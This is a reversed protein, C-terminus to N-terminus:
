EDLALRDVLILELAQERALVLRRHERLLRGRRRRRRGVLLALARRLRLRPREREGARRHLRRGVRRLPLVLWIPWTRAPCGPESLWTERGGAVARGFM